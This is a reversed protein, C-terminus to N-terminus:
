MSKYRPNPSYIPSTDFNTPTQTYVGDGEFKRVQHTVQWSGTRRKWAKWLRDLLHMQFQNPMIRIHQTYESSKAWQYLPLVLM